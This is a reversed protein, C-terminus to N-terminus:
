FHICEPPCLAISIINQIGQKSLEQVMGRAVFTKKAYELCNTVEIQILFSPLFVYKEFILPPVVYIIRIYGYALTCETTWSHFVCRATASSLPFLKVHFMHEAQEEGIPKFLPPFFQCNSM